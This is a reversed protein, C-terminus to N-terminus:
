VLELMQNIFISCDSVEVAINSLKFSPPGGFVIYSSIAWAGEESSPTSAWQTHEDLKCAPAHHDIVTDEVIDAKVWLVRDARLAISSPPPLLSALRTGRVELRFPIPTSM